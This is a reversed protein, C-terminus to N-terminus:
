GPILGEEGLLARVEALSSTPGPVIVDSEALVDDAVPRGLARVRDVLATLCQAFRPEDGADVAAALEDDVRNLEALHEEGVRLQGEGLVRVIM